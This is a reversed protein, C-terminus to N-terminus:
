DWPFQFNKREIKRGDSSYSCYSPNPFDMNSECLFVYDFLNAGKLVSRLAGYTIGTKRTSEVLLVTCNKSAFKELKSLKEATFENITTNYIKKKINIIDITDVHFVQIDHGLKKSIYSSVLGGLISGGKSGSYIILDPEIDKSIKEVFDQRLRDCIHNWSFRQKVMASNPHQWIEYEKGKKGVLRSIVLNNQSFMKKIPEPLEGIFENGYCILRITGAAGFDREYPLINELGEGTFNNTYKGFITDKFCIIRLDVYDVNNGYIEGLMKLRDNYIEISASVCNEAYSFYAIGDDGRFSDVPVLLAHHKKVIPVFWDHVKQKARSKSKDDGVHLKSSGEIDFFLIYYISPDM